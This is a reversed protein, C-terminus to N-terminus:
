RLWRRGNAGAGGRGEEGQGSTRVDDNRNETGKAGKGPLMGPSTLCHLVWIERNCKIYSRVFAHFAVSFPLLFRSLSLLSGTEM